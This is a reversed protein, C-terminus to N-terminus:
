RGGFLEGAKEAFRQGFIRFLEENEGLKERLGVPGLHIFPKGRGTGSSYVVMGRVLMHQLTGLVALDSGGQMVNATAFAGGLKGALSCKTDTDFWKKLQWSMNALYTPTGVIVADSENVFAADVAESGALNFLRVESEGAQLIGERIWGAAKETTGTMSVYLISIKM